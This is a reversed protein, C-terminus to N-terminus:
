FVLSLLFGLVFALGCLLVTAVYLLPSIQMETRDTDYNRGSDSSPGGAWRAKATGSFGAECLM